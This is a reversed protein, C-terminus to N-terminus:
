NGCYFDSGIAPDCFNLLYTYESEVLATLTGQNPTENQGGTVIPLSKKWGTGRSAFLGIGNSVNSYIPREQVLGTSPSNVDIYSKLDENGM